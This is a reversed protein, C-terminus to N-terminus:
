VNVPVSLPSVMDPVSSMPSYREAVQFAARRVLDRLQHRDGADDNGRQQRERRKGHRREGRLRGLVIEQQGAPVDDIRAVADAGHPVDGDGAALDRRNGLLDIGALCQLRDRYGAEVDHGAQDVDVHM